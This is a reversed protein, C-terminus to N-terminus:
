ICKIHRLIIMWVCICDNTITKNIQLYLKKYILLCILICSMSNKIFFDPFSFSLEFTGAEGWSNKVMYCEVGDKDKAIGFIQM